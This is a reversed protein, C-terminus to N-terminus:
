PSWSPYVCTRWVLHVASISLHIFRARVSASIVFIKFCALRRRLHTQHVELRWSFGYTLNHTDPLQWRPRRRPTLTFLASNLRIANGRAGRDENVGERRSCNVCKASSVSSLAVNRSFSLQFRATRCRAQSFQGAHHPGEGATNHFFVNDRLTM